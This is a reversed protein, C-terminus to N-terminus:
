IPQNYMTAEAPLAAETATAIPNYYTLFLHFLPVLLGGNLQGHPANYWRSDLWTQQTSQEPIHRSQQYQPVM